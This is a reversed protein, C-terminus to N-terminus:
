KKPEEKEKRKPRVIPVEKKKKKNKKVKREFIGDLEKKSLEDGAPDEDSGVSEVQDAENMM